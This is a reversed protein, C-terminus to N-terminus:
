KRRRSANSDSIAAWIWFRPEFYGEPLDPTGGEFKFRLVRADSRGRAPIPGKFTWVAGVSDKRNDANTVRLHKLGMAQERGYVFRRIEIQVPGSIQRRTPNKIRVPLSLEGKALDITPQGPDLALEVSLDEYGYPPQKGGGLSLANAGRTAAIIEPRVAFSTHWLQMVGTEGNIWGVHFNGDGDTSLGQTDGGNPFRVPIFATIGIGPAPQKPDTYTDYSGYAAMVWNASANTCTPADSLKANRHFTKGGDSSIVGYLRWCHRNLDDRRDYWVVAVIGDKNVAVTPNSPPGKMADDSATTTSWSVGLDDSYSVRVAYENRGRDFDSYSIYLRGRQPGRTVDVAPPVLVSTEMRRPGAVDHRVPGNRVPLWTRGANDSVLLKIEYRMVSDTGDLTPLEPTGVATYPVVVESNTGLVIGGVYPSRIAATPDSGSEDRNIYDGATWTRGWDTSKSLYLGGIQGVLYATGRFYSGLTVTDFAMWPRDRVPLRIPSPWTRGGDRSRSIVTYSPEDVSALGIAAFYAVGDSTIYVIPDGGALLLPDRMISKSWHRGGDFTVYVAAGMGLGTGPRVISSTAVMHKADRPDVAFHSEVHPTKPASTSVHESTLRRIGTKEDAIRTPIVASTAPIREAQTFALLVGCCAVPIATYWNV